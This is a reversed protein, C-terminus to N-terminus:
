ILHLHYCRSKLYNSRNLTRLRQTISTSTAGFTLWFRRKIRIIISTTWKTSNCISCQWILKSIAVQTWETAMIVWGVELAIWLLALNTMMSHYNISFRCLKTMGIRPLKFRKMKRIKLSNNTLTILHMRHYNIKRRSILNLLNFRCIEWRHVRLKKHRLIKM